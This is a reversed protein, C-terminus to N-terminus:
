SCPARKSLPPKRTITLIFPAAAKLSKKNMIRFKEFLAVNKPALLADYATISNDIHVLGRKGGGEGM